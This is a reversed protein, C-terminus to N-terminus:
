AELRRIQAAEDPSRFTPLRSWDGPVDAGFELVDVTLSLGAKGEHRLRKIEGDRDVWAYVPVRGLEAYSAADLPLGLDIGAAAAARGLDAHLLVRRCTQGRVVEQGASAVDITGRAIDFLWLPGMKSAADRPLTAIPRGSRGSWAEDGVVMTAFSGFDVM